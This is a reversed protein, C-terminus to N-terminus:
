MLAPKGSYALKERYKEARGYSIIQDSRLWNNRDEM